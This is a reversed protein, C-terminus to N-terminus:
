YFDQIASADMDRTANCPIYYYSSSRLGLEESTANFGVFTFTHSIGGSSAVIHRRLDSLYEDAVNQSLLNSLTSGMGADSVDGNAMRVGEVRGNRVVIEDVRAKVLVDGGISRITPILGRAFEIPGGTPYYCGEIVHGLVAAQMAFSGEEISEGLDGGFASLVTKLRGDNTLSGLAEETTMSAYKIYTSCLMQSMVFQLWRPFIRFTAFQGAQWKAKEMISLFKNIADREEPFHKTLEERVNEIGERVHMVPLDGIRLDHSSLKGEDAQVSNGAQNYKIQQHPDAVMEYLPKCLPLNAIYHLGPLFEYGSRTFTHQLGGAVHHQELVVTKINFKALCAALWLGGIGSGVIIYDVDAPVRDQRYRRRLLDQDNEQWPNKTALHLRQDDHNLLILRRGHSVVFATVVAPFLAILYCAKVRLSHWPM